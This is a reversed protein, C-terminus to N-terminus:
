NGGNKLLAKRLLESRDQASIRSKRGFQTFEGAAQKGDTEDATPAQKGASVANEAKEEPQAAQRDEAIGETPVEAEAKTEAAAGVAAAAEAPVQAVDQVAHAFTEEDREETQRASPEKGVRLDASESHDAHNETVGDHMAIPAAAQTDSEPLVTEAPATAQEARRLSNESPASFDRNLFESADADYQVLVRETNERAGDVTRKMQGYIGAFAKARELLHTATQAVGSIDRNLTEFIHNIDRHVTEYEDIIGQTEGMMEDFRVGIDQLLKQATDKSDCVIERGAGYARKYIKAIDNFVAESQARDARLKENEAICASLQKELEAIRNEASQAERQFKKREADSREFKKDLESVAADVESKKYGGFFAKKFSSM